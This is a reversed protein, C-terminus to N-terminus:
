LLTSHAISLDWLILYWPLKTRKDEMSLIPRQTFKFRVLLNCSSFTKPERLTILVQVAKQTIEQETNGEYNYQRLQNKEWCDTGFLNWLFRKPKCRYSGRCSSVFIVTCATLLKSLTYYSTQKVWMRDIEYGAKSMSQGKEERVLRNQSNMTRTQSHFKKRHAGWEVIGQDKLTLLCYLHVENELSRTDHKDEERNM